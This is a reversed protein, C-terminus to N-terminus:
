GILKLIPIADEPNKIEWDCPLVDKIGCSGKYGLPCGECGNCDPINECLERITVLAEYIKQYDM